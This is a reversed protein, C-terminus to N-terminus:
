SRATRHVSSLAREVIRLAQLGVIIGLAIAIISILADVFTTAGAVTDDGVLQTVGILGLAGPVLLWFAPLFSVLAPPASPFREIFTALSAVVLGGVFGSLLAGFLAAGILQGAWAAYLVLLLWPLSRRPASHQLATGVGFVLVGVLPAWMGLLHLPRSPVKAATVGVLAAGAVIGLALLALQLLGALFRSAGAVVENSALDVTATTLLAGPLFLVLPPILAELPEPGYRGAVGFAIASVAGAALVPLISSLGPVRSAGLRLIAVLLGLVLYSPLLEASPRIILGIGLTVVVYALTRVISNHRRPMKRVNSLAEMGKDAPLEGNAASRAVNLVETVQDLRLATGAGGQFEPTALTAPERPGGAIAVATPLVVVRTHPYGYATAAELLRREIDSVAEGTAVLSSGLEM